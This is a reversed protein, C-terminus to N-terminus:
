RKELKDWMKFDFRAKQFVKERGNELEYDKM